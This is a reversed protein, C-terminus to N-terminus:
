VRNGDQSKVMGFGFYRELTDVNYHLFVGVPAKAIQGRETEEVWAQGLETPLSGGKIYHFTYKLTM